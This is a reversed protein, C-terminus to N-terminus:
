KGNETRNSAGIARTRVTWAAEIMDDLSSPHGARLL